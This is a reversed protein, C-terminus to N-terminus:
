SSSFAVLSFFFMESFRGVLGGVRWSILWDCYDDLANTEFTSFFFNSVSNDQAFLVGGSWVYRYRMKISGILVM